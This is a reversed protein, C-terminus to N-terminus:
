CLFTFNTSFYIYNRMYINTPPNTSPIQVKTGFSTKFDGIIITNIAIDRASRTSKQKMRVIVVYWSDLKLGSEETHDARGVVPLQLAWRAPSRPFLQQGLVTGTGYQM